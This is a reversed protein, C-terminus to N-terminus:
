KTSLAHTDTCAEGEHVILRRVIHVESENSEWLVKSMITYQVKWPHM